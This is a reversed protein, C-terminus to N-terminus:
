KLTERKAQMLVLYMTKKTRSTEKSAVLDVKFGGVEGKSGAGRIVSWGAEEFLCKVERELAVGQQYKRNPM